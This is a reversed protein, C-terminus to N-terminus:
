MYITDVEELIVWIKHLMYLRTSIEECKDVYITLQLAMADPMVKGVGRIDQALMADARRRFDSLQESKQLLVENSAAIHNLINSLSLVKNGNSDTYILNPLEKCYRNILNQDIESLQTLQM